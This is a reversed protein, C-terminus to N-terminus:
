LSRDVRGQLTPRRCSHPVPILSYLRIHTINSNLANRSPSKNRTKLSPTDLTVDKSTSFLYCKRNSPIRNCKGCTDDSKEIRERAEQRMRSYCQVHESGETRRSTRVSDVDDVHGLRLSVGLAEALVIVLM